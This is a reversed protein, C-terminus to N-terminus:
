SQEKVLKSAAVKMEQDHKSKEHHHTAINKAHEHAMNRIKMNSDVVKIAMDVSARAEEAEAKMKAITAQDTSQGIKAMVDMRKTDSDQKAVSLKAVELQDDIMEHHSNLELEQQKLKMKMIEPNNQMAQAQEQKIKQMFADSMMKLSDIGRIEINDLLIGLGEENMFKAFMPSVQMLGIIQSLAKAKQISFNVGAEVQVHLSNEDYNLSISDPNEPQNIPVSGRKGDMAHVPINRPLTYYKPILDVIIQAVQNWAQLFGVVYPMAAANSQTAAEEISDGSLNQQRMQEPAFNGLIVQSLQDMATFAAGVEPPMSVRPVPAPIPLQKQPENPDFANYVFVKSKQPNMWAQLYDEQQPISELAAMWKHQIMNELENAWAQGAFNKLKQAGEMHYVYPRTMLQSCSSDEDKILIDSGPVYVIPLIKYDTEEYSLVRDQIFVYRCITVIDTWRPRGKIGPPQAILGAADWMELMKKYKKYTVVSGNVLQVIKTKKKKKLYYDCMLITDTQTTENRYSWSFSEVNRTYNLSTIDIEPYEEQFDEKSKPYLEFCFRGDSKTPNRALPDFGCLTPDFVKRLCIKQNFSMEHAYETYVKIASFGGSLQDKYVEYECGNKNSDFIIHRIHDEVVKIVRPDVPVGDDSKVTISPEQKSFEGLLRSIPAECINFEIVPKDQENLISIDDPNLATDFVFKQFQNFRKYNPKFYQYAAEVDKKIKKLVDTYENAAEM